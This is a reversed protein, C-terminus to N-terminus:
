VKKEPFSSSYKMFIAIDGPTLKFEEKIFSAPIIMGNKLILKTATNTEIKVAIDSLLNNNQIMFFSSYQNKLESILANGGRIKLSVINDPSSKFAKVGEPIDGLHTVDVVESSLFIYSLAKIEANMKKLYDYVATRTGDREIPGLRYDDISPTWYTFYQIGKAGYALNTYVQLRIQNLDTIPYENHATTLAFAWFPISAKKTESRITELNQYWNFRLRNGIIPYHDFSLVKLPIESIFRSIYEEYNTARYNDPLTYNPLLNIYCFRSNDISEIKQALDKLFSIRSTAPEDQLFYGANAPHDKFRQVTQIPNSSLEPCDILLKVGVQHAFDLAKQVSDVHRYRALNITIGSNKLEEFRELTLNSNTVGVWAVLPFDTTDKITTYSSLSLGKIIEDISRANVFTPKTDDIDIICSSFFLTLLLVIFGKCLIKM